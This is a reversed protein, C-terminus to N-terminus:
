VQALWILVPYNREGKNLTSVSSVSINCYGASELLKTLEQESFGHHFVGTPDNHFSGDEAALDAMAIWGGPYLNSTLSSLLKAPEKIHHLTMASYILHFSGTPMEGAELDRLATKINKTKTAKVKEALKDLMACSSDIGTICRLHPALDLTVLGTGCGIEMADWDASLPVKAKIESAIEGALKVRRPEEDWTYAAKNFDRKTTVIDGKGM